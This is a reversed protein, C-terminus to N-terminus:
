QSYFLPELIDVKWGAAEDSAFKLSAVDVIEIVRSKLQKWWSLFWRKDHCWLECEKSIGRYVDLWCPSNGTRKVQRTRQWTCTSGFLCRPKPPTTLKKGKMILCMNPILHMNGQLKPFLRICKILRHICYSIKSTINKKHCPVFGASWSQGM